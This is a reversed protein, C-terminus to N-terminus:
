NAVAYMTALCWVWRTTAVTQTCNIRNPTLDANAGSYSKVCVTGNRYVTTASMYITISRSVAQWNQGSADTPIWLNVGMIDNSHCVCRLPMGAPAHLQIDCWDTGHWLLIAVMM